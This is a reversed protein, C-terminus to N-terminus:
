DDIITVVAPNTGTITTTPNSLLVEFTETMAEAPNGMDNNTITVVIDKSVVGPTFVLTGSLTVYDIEKAKGTSAASPTASDQTDFDVTVTGASGGVRDVTLTVSGDAEMVSPAADAFALAGTPVVEDDLITILTAGPAGITAGGSLSTADLSLDITLPMAELTVDQIMTITVDMTGGVGAGWILPQTAFTYDDPNAVGPSASGTLDDIVDVAVVGMLGGVREVQVTMTVVGAGEDINYTASTFQLAGASEDDLIQLTAVDQTGVQAGVFAGLSFDVTRTGDNIANDLIPVSVTKQGVEGDMWAVTQAAPYTYDAPLAAGEAATGTGNDIVDASVMGASPGTRELTLTAVGAGVNEDVQFIAQLFAISSVPDRDSKHCAPILIAACLFLALRVIRSRTM